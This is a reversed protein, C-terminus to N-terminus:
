PLNKKKLEAESSRLYIPTLSALPTGNNQQLRDESLRAVASALSSYSDGSSLLAQNAFRDMLLREHTKSGDGVFLCPADGVLNGVSEIVEAAGGAKDETLRTLAQGSRRFLAAYVENRRADLLSCVPGEFDDVRAANAFLTSIGVVPIGLGYALGKVTSLGIRIGTFSGPGISVAFGSVDRLARASKRLLAAMLPLIVEAHNPKSHLTQPHTASGRASHIEEAILQGNETLAVSATTISTDIGIIRM